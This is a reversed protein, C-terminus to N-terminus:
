LVLSIRYIRGVNFTEVGGKALVEAVKGPTGAVQGSFGLGQCGSHIKHPTHVIETSVM